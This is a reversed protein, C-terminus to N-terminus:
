TTLPATDADDRTENSVVIQEAWLSLAVDELSRGATEPACFYSYCGMGICLTALVLYTYGGLAKVCLPALKGILSNVTWNAFTSLAIGVGRVRLPLVESCYVWATPGWSASFAVTFSMMAAVASYALTPTPTRSGALVTLAIVVHTAAMAAAGYILLGRRGVSTRDLLAMGPVTGIILLASNAVVLSTAAQERSAAGAKEMLDAAYYLIVNIGTLQQWCQLGVVLSARRRNDGSCLERTRSRLSACHSRCSVARPAGGAPARSLAEREGDGASLNADAVADSGVLGEVELEKEIGAVEGSVDQSEAPKERLAAVVTIADRTRGRAVLWRPSEPLRAVFAVVLLGPVIQAALAARWQTDSTAGGSTALIIANVSSACFIGVTILLQQAAVLKGRHLPAATEAIFLPSVSSMIGVGVGSFIRGVILSGLGRAASQLAGGFAFFVGGLLISSRRGAADASFAALASGVMAGMLFSSVIWGATDASSESEIVSLGDDGSIVGTGFFLRFSPMSLVGDIIGIEYGFSFGSISSTLAVLSAFQM